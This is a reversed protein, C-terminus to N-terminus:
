WAYSFNVMSKHDDTNHKFSLNANRGLRKDVSVQLENKLASYECKVDVETQLRFGVKDKGLHGTRLRYKSRSEDTSEAITSDISAPGRGGMEIGSWDEFQNELQKMEDTLNHKIMENGLGSLSTANIHSPIYSSPPETLEGKPAIKRIDQYENDLSFNQFLLFCASLGALAPWSRIWCRKVKIGM